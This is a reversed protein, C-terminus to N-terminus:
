LRLLHEEHDKTGRRPDFGNFTNETDRRAGGHILATFPTRRPGEHGKTSLFFNLLEKASLWGRCGGWGGWARMMM